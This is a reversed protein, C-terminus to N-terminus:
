DREIEFPRTERAVLYYRGDIGQQYFSLGGNAGEPGNVEVRLQKGHITAPGRRHLWGCGRFMNTASMEGGLSADKIHICELGFRCVHKWPFRCRPDRKRVKAKEQRELKLAEAEDDERKLVLSGRAPKPKADGIPPRTYDPIAM